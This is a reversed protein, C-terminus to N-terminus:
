DGTVTEGTIKGGDPYVIEGNQRAWEEGIGVHSIANKSARLQKEAERLLKQPAIAYVIKLRIQNDAHFVALYIKSNRTIRALSEQKKNQPERFMRDLQGRGGEKCSLYEFVVDPKGRAHADPGRKDKIIEHGLADAIIMEKVLGPQLLNNIGIARALAFAENILALIKGYRANDPM